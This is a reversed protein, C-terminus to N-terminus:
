ARWGGDVTVVTGTVYRADDSALFAMVDAVEDPQGMRGMPVSVALMMGLAERGAEDDLMPRTMGTEIAGPAVGNVRVGDAAYDAAVQRILGITGFKSVTYATGGARSGLGAVSATMVINGKSKILEPLAAKCGYFYGRLNINIVKDWTEVPLDVAKMQELIGANNVYVDLKGYTAVAAVVLAQVSDWASTDVKQFVSEGGAAKVLGVTESGAAEVIDAVVVKAGESAFRLAAARGMGSGAGTVVVVKGDFRTM